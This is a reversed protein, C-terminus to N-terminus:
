YIFHTQILIRNLVTKLTLFLVLHKYKRTKRILLDVQYCDFYDLHEKRASTVPISSHRSFGRTAENM